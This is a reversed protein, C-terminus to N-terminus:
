GAVSRRAYGQAAEIWRQIDEAMPQKASRLIHQGDATQCLNDVQATLQDANATCVQWSTRYGLAVLLQAGTGSLGPVECALRAQDQWDRILSDTIWRVTLGSALEEPSAGVLQAISHVGIDALRKATKPGISPAEILPSGYHVTQKAVSSQWGTPRAIRPPIPASTPQTTESLSEPLIRLGGTPAEVTEDVRCVEIAPTQRTQSPNLAPCASMEASQNTIRHADADSGTASDGASETQKAQAERQARAVSLSIYRTAEPENRALQQNATASQVSGDISNQEQHAAAAKSVVGLEEPLNRVVTGTKQYEDLLRQVERRQSANSIQRAVWALPLDITALLSTVTLSVHPLQVTTEDALRSLVGSWGGIALAFLEVLIDQVQEDLACQPNKTNSPPKYLEMLRGAHRHSVTAAALVAKCIWQPDQAFEFSAVCQQQLYRDYISDYARCISWELPRHVIEEGGFSGTHLPMIPDTFYHSLVGCAYAAKKWRCGALHDQAIALWEQCKGPAGGWNNQSVHVVHNTFDKFSTDPANAGQLYDDHYKLLLNGLRQAQPSQLQRLADIAFYHHTSRCHAARLIAFIHSM